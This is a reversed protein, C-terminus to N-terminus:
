ALQLQCDALIVRSLYLLLDRTRRWPSSGRVRPNLPQGEGTRARECAAAACTLASSRVDAFPLPRPRVAVWVAVRQRQRDGKRVPVQPSLPPLDGLEIKGGRDRREDAADVPANGV